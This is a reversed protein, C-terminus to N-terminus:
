LSNIIDGEAASSDKREPSLTQIVKVRPIIMDGADEDEFGMPVENQTALAAETEKATLAEDKNVEKAM